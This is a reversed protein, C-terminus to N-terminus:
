VAVDILRMHMDNKVNLNRTAFCTYWVDSRVVHCLDQDLDFFSTCPSINKYSASKLMCYFAM